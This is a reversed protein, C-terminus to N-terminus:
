RNAPTRTTASPPGTAAGPSSTRTPSRGKSSSSSPRSSGAAAARFPALFSEGGQTPSLVKNHLSVEPLGPILGLVVDEIPPQSAATMAVSDGDCSMGESIWLIDIHEFGEGEPRSTPERAVDETGADISM